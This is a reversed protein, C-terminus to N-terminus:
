FPGTYAAAALFHFTAPITGDALLALGRMCLTHILIRLPQAILPCETLKRILYAPILVQQPINLPLLPHIPLRPIPNLIRQINTTQKSEKKHYIIHQRSFLTSFLNQNSDRSPDRSTSSSTQAHDLHWKINASQNPSPSCITYTSRNSSSTRHQCIWTTPQNVPM